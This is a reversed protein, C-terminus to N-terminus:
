EQADGGAPAGAQAEPAEAATADPEAGGDADV